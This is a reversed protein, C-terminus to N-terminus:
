LGSLDFTQLFHRVTRHVRVGRIGDLRLIDLM